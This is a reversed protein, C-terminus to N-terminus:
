GLYPSALSVLKFCTQFEHETGCGILGGVRGTVAIAVAAAAAVAVADSTLMWKRGPGTGQSPSLHLNRRRM